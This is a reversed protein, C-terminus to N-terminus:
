LEVSFVRCSNEFLIRDRDRPSLKLGSVYELFSEISVWPHDSGFLCHDAGAFDIAFQMAQTSPSVLDLYVQKYYEDPPRSINERGRGKVETQEVVRPMLYPLVGGCHPHVITLEPHRELTGGLILRLMAISTDVMLGLMPVMSYDSIARSWTPYTPHLVVPIREQAAFAFLPEFLASDVPQGALHSYLVVGRLGLDDVARALETRAAETDQWPIVALGVFRDPNRAVLDAISDNCCRAAELRLDEDLLEPGPINISLLTMDVGARDMDALKKEPDYVAPDLRFRVLDEYEVDFAGNARRVRVSGTNRTLLEAYERPFVHSQCDFIRM